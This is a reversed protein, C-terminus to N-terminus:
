ETILLSQKNRFPSYFDRLRFLASLIDKPPASFLHEIDELVSIYMANMLLYFILLGVWVVLVIGHMVDHMLMVNIPVVILFGSVFGGLRGWVELRKKTKKVDPSIVDAWAFCNAPWLVCMSIIVEMFFGIVWLAERVKEM